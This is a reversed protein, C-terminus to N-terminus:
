NTFIINGNSLKSNKSLLSLIIFFYIIPEIKQSHFKMTAQFLIIMGLIQKKKHRQYQVPILKYYIEIPYISYIKM